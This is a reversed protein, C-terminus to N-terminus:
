NFCDDPYKRYYNNVADSITTIDKLKLLPYLPLSITRKSIKHANPAHRKDALLEWDNVPIISKIGRNYLYRIIKKPKRTLHVARYRVPMIKNSINFEKGILNIGCSLYRSFLKERISIFENLRKLQTRGVAAQLDTMQFNFRPKNIPKCDFDRIDRALEATTTNKVVIAGGQGGSTILKTAYFSFISIESQSGVVQGNVMAGISQACDEIISFSFNESTIKNPLGFMHPVIAVDVNSNVLRVLNINVSNKKVDLVVPISKVMRVAHWLSSCSYAPIGVRQRNKSENLLIKLAIYLAASGSSVCIVNKESLGILRSIEKEFIQVQEDQAIMGSLLVKQAASSEKRGLTPKNHEIM